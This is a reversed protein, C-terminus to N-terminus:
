TAPLWQGGGALGDGDTLWDGDTIVDDGARRLRENNEAGVM